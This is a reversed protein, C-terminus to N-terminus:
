RHPARVASRAFLASPPPAGRATTGHFHVRDFRDFHSQVMEPTIAEIWPSRWRHNTFQRWFARQWIRLTVRNSIGLAAKVRAGPRRQAARRREARLVATAARMAARDEPRRVEAVLAHLQAACREASRGDIRFYVDELFATRAASREEDL